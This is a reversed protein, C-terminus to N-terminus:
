QSPASSDGNQERADSSTRLRLAREIITEITDNMNTFQFRNMFRMFGMESALKGLAEDAFSSTIVGVGDFDLLIPKGEQLFNRLEQQFREGGQRSSFYIKKDKMAINMTSGEGLTRDLYDFAAGSRGGIDIAERLADPKSYDLECVVCTGSYLVSIDKAVTKIETQYKKHTFLAAHGSTM